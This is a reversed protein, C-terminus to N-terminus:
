TIRLKSLACALDEGFQDGKKIVPVSHPLARLQVDAADLSTLLAVPIARTAPMADLACALDIGSMGAMVATAIVLDPKTRIVTGIASLTSPETIVRFGCARLEMEVIHAGAGRPMVLLVEVESETVDDVEFAYRVPLRRVILATDADDADLTGDLVDRMRDVFVLMEGRERTTPEGIDTIYDELRHAIVSVLPYGFSGASGKLNHVLRYTEDMPAKVASDRGDILVELRDLKEAATELYQQSLDALMASFTDKSISM